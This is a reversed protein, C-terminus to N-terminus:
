TLMYIYSAVNNHFFSLCSKPNLEVSEFKDVEIYRCDIGADEGMYNDIIESFQELNKVHKLSLKVSALDDPNSSPTSNAANEPCFFPMVQNVCTLCSWSDLPNLQHYSYEPASTGNCNCHSWLNCNDCLIANQNNKVPRGCVSCLSQVM